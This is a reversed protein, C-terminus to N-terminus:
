DDEYVKTKKTFYAMVRRDCFRCRYRNGISTWREYEENKWKWGCPCNIHKVILSLRKKKKVEKKKKKWFNLPAM